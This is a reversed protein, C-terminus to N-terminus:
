WSNGLEQRIVGHVVFHITHIHIIRPTDYIHLTNCWIGVDGHSNLFRQTNKFITLPIQNCAHVCWKQM